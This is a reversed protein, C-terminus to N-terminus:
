FSDLFRTNENMYVQDVFNFWLGLTQCRQIFYKHIVFWQTFKTQPFYFENKNNAVTKM